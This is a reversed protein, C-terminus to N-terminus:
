IELEKLREHRGGELPNFETVMAERIADMREQQINRLRKAAPAGFASWSFPHILVQVRNHAALTKADPYGWRWKCKSDSIYKVEAEEPTDTRTFFHEGYANLMGPVSLKEYATDSKPRHCSFAKVQVGLVNEMAEAQQKIEREQQAHPINAQRYHLGIHHGLAAIIAIIRQGEESFPNYAESGIQIFFTSELGAIADLEAMSVASELSFEVDHRLIIFDDVKAAAEFTKARGTEAIKEVIRRYEAYSPNYEM